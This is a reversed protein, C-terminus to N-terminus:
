GAPRTGKSEVPKSGTRLYYEFADDRRGQLYPTLYLASMGELYQAQRIPGVDVTELGLQNALDGVEKKASDDNGALLSTVPGGTIKPNAIVHFGVTNFAKVVKATPKAAQMEEGASSDSAMVMLGDEGMKLANTVDVVTKGGVNGMAGLIDSMSSYPTAIIIMDCAACAQDVAAASANGGTKKLLDVIDTRQPDRCGYVIKHSLAALNLGLATGMRGTGLIAIM